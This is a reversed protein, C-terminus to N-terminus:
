IKITWRTFIGTLDSHPKSTIFGFVNTDKSIGMLEICYIYHPASEEEHNHLLLQFWQSINIIRSLLNYTAFVHQQFIHFYGIM